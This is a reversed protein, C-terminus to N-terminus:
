GMEALIKEAAELPSPHAIIPRGIVLYTSGSELAHRPTLIRQQDDAASWSPRIGPTVIVLDGSVKERILPAERSSAVVGHMGTEKALRALHLVQEEVTREVGAEERLTQETFSTLVTVGVITPCPVGCRASAKEASEVTRLMMERGGSLHINFMDVGYSVAVEAATAVTNPIDHFKQDLFVRVGYKKIGSIIRPGSALFLRFGVKFYSILPSLQSVLAYAEEESDVDLAVIIKEALAGRDAPSNKDLPVGKDTADQKEVLAM